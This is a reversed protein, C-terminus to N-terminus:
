RGATTTRRAFCKEYKLGCWVVVGSNTVRYWVRLAGHNPPPSTHTGQWKSQPTYSVVDLRNTNTHRHTDNRM